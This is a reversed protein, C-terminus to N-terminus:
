QTVYKKSAEAMRANFRIKTVRDFEQIVIFKTTNPIKKDVDEIGKELNQKSSDTADVKKLQNMLYNKKVFDHKVLKSLKSLDVTTTDLKDM